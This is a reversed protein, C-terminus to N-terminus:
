CVVEATRDRVGAIMCPVEAITDLVASIMDLVVVIM